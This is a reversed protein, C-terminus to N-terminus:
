KRHKLIERARDLDRQTDIAVHDYEHQTELIKIKFGHELARLQELGETLELRSPGIEAFEQLKAYQFAYVGIHHFHPLVDAKRPYPILARSFYLARHSKASRIVKVDFPYTAAETDPFQGCLTAMDWGPEELLPWVVEPLMKPNLFPEDAQINVVIDVDTRGQLAEACRDSGCVHEKKTLVANGGFSEVIKAIKEHDVALIIESFLGAEVVREYVHQIVPKGGLDQLVKAQIEESGLRAPIVGIIKKDGYKVKIQAVM